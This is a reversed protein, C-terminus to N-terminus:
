AVLWVLVLLVFLCVILGLVLVVIIGFHVDCCVGECCVSLYCLWLVSMGVCEVGGYQSTFLFMCLLYVTNCSICGCMVLMVVHLGVLRKAWGLQFEFYLIIGDRVLNLAVVLLFMWIFNQRRVKRFHAFIYFLLLIVCGAITSLSYTSRILAIATIMHALFAIKVRQTWTAIAAAQADDDNSSPLITPLLRSPSTTDYSSLNSSDAPLPYVASSSSSSSSPFSSSTPLSSSSNHNTQTVLPIRTPATTHCVRQSLGDHRIHHRRRSM